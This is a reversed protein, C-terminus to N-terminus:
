HKSGHHYGKSLKCQEYYLLLLLSQIIIYLIYIDKGLPHIRVYSRSCGMPFATSPSLWPLALPLAWLLESAEHAGAKLKESPHLPGCM